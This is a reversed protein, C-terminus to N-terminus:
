AATSVAATSQAASVGAADDAFVGSVTCAPAAAQVVPQLLAQVAELAAADAKTRVTSGALKRRMESDIAADVEAQEEQTLKVDGFGLLAHQTDEFTTKDPDPVVAALQAHPIAVTVTSGAADVTVCAADLASLDVTFTGTGVCHVTKTKAFLPINALAQTITFDAKVDQEYVELASKTRAEGLVVQTFDVAPGSEASAPLADRWSQPLAIDPWRAVLAQAIRGRFLYVALLAAALVALVVFLRVFRRKVAGAAKQGWSAM